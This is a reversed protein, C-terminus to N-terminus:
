KKEKVTSQVLRKYENLVEDNSNDSLLRKLEEVDINSGELKKRIDPVDLVMAAQECELLKLLLNEERQCIQTARQRQEPTGRQKMELLFKNKNAIKRANYIAPGATVGFVVICFVAFAMILTM